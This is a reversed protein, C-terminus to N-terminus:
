SELKTKKNKIKNKKCIIQGHSVPFLLVWSRRLSPKLLLGVQAYSSLQTFCLTLVSRNRAKESSSIGLSVGIVYVRELHNNNNVRFYTNRRLWKGGRGERQSGWRERCGNMGGQGEVDMWREGGREGGQWGKNKGRGRKIKWKNKEGVRIWIDSFSYWCM